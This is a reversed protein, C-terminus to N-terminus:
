VRQCVRPQDGFAQVMSLLSPRTTPTRKPGTDASRAGRCALAESFEREQEFAHGSPDARCKLQGNELDAPQAPLPVALLLPAFVAADLDLYPEEYIQWSKGSGHLSTAGMSYTGHVHKLFSLSFRGYVAQCLALRKRQRLSFPSWATPPHFIAQWCGLLPGALEKSQARWAAVCTHKLSLCRVSWCPGSVHISM